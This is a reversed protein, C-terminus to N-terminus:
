EVPLLGKEKLANNAGELMAPPDAFAKAIMGEGALPGLDLMFTHVENTPTGDAKVLPKMNGTTTTTTTTATYTYDDNNDIDNYDNDIDIDNSESVTKPKLQRTDQFHEM